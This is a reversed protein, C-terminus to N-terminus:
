KSNNRMFQNIVYLVGDDDNSRTIYDAKEKVIPQANEMAVGLGAYEIMSLDNYGDGCCIMQDATLGISSLLKQLTYAKDIKQPMIELFFPESRYINLLSHFKAKLVEMMEELIVPEGPILLKNVPFDIYESFHEVPKIKMKNIMREKETYQNPQLGSIIEDGQYTIIDVDKYQKAIQYIPEIVDHPITKNYIIEDTSCQTIRAGNFSLIYSGFRGLELADALPQVGNIPRGSALVVKKGAEQIEILAKKTPETIEKRSNTLTGDLDLVLMEYVMEKDGEVKM